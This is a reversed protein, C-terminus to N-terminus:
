RTGLTAVMRQMDHGTPSQHVRLGFEPLVAYLHDFIDAQIGEYLSWDTVNTFAYIEIPQGHESPSLPRVMLPMGQHIGEHFRLYADVYARLVGFNTLQRRDLPSADLGVQFEQHYESLHIDKRNFYPSLYRSQRLRSVEDSTLFRITTVDLLLSRQIRRCGSESMGRWNRFSDSILAYTPVTTITNDWNKVKVITLGIDIVEGDTDYKEMELWDGKKLLSNASLQVGAVLGLLPDKFVFMVIATMAGLGSILLLPSKGILLSIGMVIALIVTLLKVTQAMGRLPLQKDIRSGNTIDLGSDLLAHLSMLGFSIIWFQTGLQLLDHLWPSHDLWVDVQLHLVIGQLFFASRRFLNREFFSKKWMRRSNQSARELARIVLRHLIFHIILSASFILFLTAALSILDVYPLFPDPLWRTLNYMFYQNM